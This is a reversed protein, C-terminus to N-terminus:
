QLVDGAVNSFVPTFVFSFPPFIYWWASVRSQVINVKTGKSQKAASTFDDVTAQLSADGIVPQVVFLNIAINSTSQHAIPRGGPTTFGNFNTAIQTSSCSAVSLIVCGALIGMAFRKKM